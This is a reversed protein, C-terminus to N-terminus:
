PATATPAAAYLRQHEIFVRVSDPVLYRISRGDRVRERLASGSLDIRTVPLVQHAWGPDGMTQRESKGGRSLVVIRALGAIEDPERWAGFDAWQDAGILLHLEAGPAENRLHRLTDVTWSPGPRRFEVDSVAFRDDGRIGERVMALRLAGPTVEASDKHPPVAAPVFLVRDLALGELVDQAVLLHGVHFPDFTGGFIGVRGTLELERVM